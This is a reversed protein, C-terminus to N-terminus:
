LRQKEMQVLHKTFIMNEISKDTGKASLITKALPTKLSVANTEIATGKTDGGM